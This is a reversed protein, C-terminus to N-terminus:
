GEIRPFTDRVIQAGVSSWAGDAYVQLDLTDKSFSGRSKTIDCQQAALREDSTFELVGSVCRLVRSIGM